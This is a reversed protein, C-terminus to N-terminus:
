NNLWECIINMDEGWMIYYCLTINELEVIYVIYIYIYIYERVKQVNTPMEILVQSSDATSKNRRSKVAHPVKTFINMIM